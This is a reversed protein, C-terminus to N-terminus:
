HQLCGILVIVIVALARKVIVSWAKQQLGPELAIRAPAAICVLRTKPAARVASTSAVSSVSQLATAQLFRFTVTSLVTVLGSHASPVDRLPAVDLLRKPTTKVTEVLIVFAHAVLAKLDTMASVGGAIDANYRRKTVTSQATASDLTGDWVWLSTPTVM